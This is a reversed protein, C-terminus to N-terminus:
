KIKRKFISKIKIKGSMLRSEINILYRHYFKSKKVRNLFSTKGPIDTIYLGTLLTLLGPGPIILMVCGMLILTVGAM